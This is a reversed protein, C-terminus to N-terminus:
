MMIRVVTYALQAFLLAPVGFTFLKKDTLHGFVIMGCLTGFAGFPVSLAFLLPAPIRRLGFSELHKDYAMAVFAIISFAYILPFAEDYFFYNM